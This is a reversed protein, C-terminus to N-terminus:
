GNNTAGYKKFRVLAEVIVDFGIVVARVALGMLLWREPFMFFCFLWGIWLSLCWTCDLLTAFFYYLGGKRYLPEGYEDRELGVWQRIVEFVKLPGKEDVFMKTVSWTLLLAFVFQQWDVIRFDFANTLTEM